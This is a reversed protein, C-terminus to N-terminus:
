LVSGEIRLDYVTIRGFFDSSEEFVLKISEVGNEVLGQVEGEPKLEFCQQRNVDEPYIHTLTHWETSDGANQNTHVDVSCRTGVFGGQFTLAIRKPVV